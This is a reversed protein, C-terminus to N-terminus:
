EITEAIELLKIMPHIGSVSYGLKTNDDFWAVRGELRMPMSDVITCKAHIYKPWRSAGWGFGKFGNVVLAQPSVDLDSDSAFGKLSKNQMEESSMAWGILGSFVLISGQERQYGFGLNPCIEGDSYHM